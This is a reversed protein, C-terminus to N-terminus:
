IVETEGNEPQRFATALAAYTIGELSRTQAAAIVAEFWAAPIRNRKYWLDVYARNGPRFAEVDRRMASFTPWRKIITQATETSMPESRVLTM